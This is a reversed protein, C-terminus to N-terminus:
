GRKWFNRKDLKGSFHKFYFSNYLDVQVGNAGLKIFIKSRKQCYRLFSFLKNLLTYKRQVIKVELKIRIM